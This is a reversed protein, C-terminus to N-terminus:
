EYIKKQLYKINRETRNPNWINPTPETINPHLYLSAIFVIRGYPHFRATQFWKRLVNSVNSETFEKVNNIALIEDM